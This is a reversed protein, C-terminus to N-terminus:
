DRYAYQQNYISNVRKVTKSWNQQHKPRAEGTLVGRLRASNGLVVLADALDPSRGLKKKCEAKPDILVREPKGILRFCRSTLEKATDKDMGKLQGAECFRRISYWLETVRNAYAEKGTKTLGPAIPMDSALGGFEVNNVPGWHTLMYLYVARGQGTSDLSFDRPMMNRRKCEDICFQGIQHEVPVNTDSLKIPVIIPAELELADRHDSDKGIKGFRLICRDGGYAPDLGGIYSYELDWTVRDFCKNKSLISFSVIRDSESGAPPWMGRRMTWWQMSDDGNDAITKDIDEQSLLGKWKKSGTLNPSTLGDLRICRGKKTKWGESSEGISEWGDVPECEQGHTDLQSVPNGLGIFQSEKTGTMINTLGEIVETTMDQLEDAVILVRDAHWGKIKGLGEVSKERSGPIISISHISDGKKALLAHESDVLRGPMGPVSRYFQTIQGWIRRASMTVSTSTVCVLSNEYDCLWWVLVYIAACTSKGSGSCGSVTIHREGSCFERLLLESWDHWEFDPWLMEVIKRLHHFRGEGTPFNNKFQDFEIALDNLSDHYTFGYIQKPYSRVIKRM